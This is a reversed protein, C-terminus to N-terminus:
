CRIHKKLEEASLRSSLRTFGSVDALLVAAFVPDARPEIPMKQVRLLIKLSLFLERTYLYLYAYTYRAIQKLMTASFFKRNTKFSATASEPQSNEAALKAAIDFESNLRSELVQNMDRITGRRRPINSSTPTEIGSSEM